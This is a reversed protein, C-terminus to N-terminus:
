IQEGILKDMPSRRWSRQPVPAARPNKMKLEKTVESRHLSRRVTLITPFSIRQLLTARAQTRDQPKIGILQVPKTIVQGNPYRFM